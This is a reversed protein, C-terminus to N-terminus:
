GPTEDALALSRNAADRSLFYGVARLQDLVPRVAPVLGLQKALLLVGVTGTVRLGIREAVSRARLDDLLIPTARSAVFALLIAEREGPDLAALPLERGEATPASERVIWRASAVEAAGPRGAGEVVVERWVAPPVLIEQYVDRLLNLRGVAACFIIPSSDSIAPM